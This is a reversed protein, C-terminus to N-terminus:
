DPLWGQSVAHALQTEFWNHLTPHHEAIFAHRDQVMQATVGHERWNKGQTQINYFFPLPRDIARVLRAEACDSFEHRDWLDLLNAITNGTLHQLRHMGERDDTKALDRTDAYLYTDGGDIEGLDHILALQLLIQIDYTDPLHNAIAWSHEASNEFREAHPLINKREITKLHSLKLLFEFINNWQQRTSTDM